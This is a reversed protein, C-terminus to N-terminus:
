TLTARSGAVTEGKSATDDGIAGFGLGDSGGAGSFSLKNGSNSSGLDGFIETDDKLLKAKSLLMGSKEILVVFRGDVHDVGATRGFAGAVNVDLVKSDLIPFTSAVDEEFVDFTGDIGAVGEGFADTANEVRVVSTAEHSM